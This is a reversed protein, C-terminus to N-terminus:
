AYVTGSLELIMEEIDNARQELTAIDGNPTVQSYSGTRIMSPPRTSICHLFNRVRKWSNLNPPEKVTRCKSLIKM